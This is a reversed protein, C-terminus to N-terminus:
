SCSEQLRVFQKASELSDFARMLQPPQERTRLDLVSVRLKMENQPTAPIRQYQMSVLLYCIRAGERQVWIIEPVHEPGTLTPFSYNEPRDNQHLIGQLSYVYKGYALTLWNGNSADHVYAYWGRIPGCRLTISERDQIPRRDSLPFPKCPRTIFRAEAEAPTKPASLFFLCMFLAVIVAAKSLPHFCM